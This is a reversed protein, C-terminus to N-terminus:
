FALLDWEYLEVHTHSLVDCRSVQSVEKNKVEICRVILSTETTQIWKTVICISGFERPGDEAQFYDGCKM